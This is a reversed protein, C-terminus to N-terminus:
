LMVTFPVRVAVTSALQCALQALAFARAQHTLPTGVLALKTRARIDPIAKEVAAWLVASREAKLREYEPSRLLCTHTPGSAHV